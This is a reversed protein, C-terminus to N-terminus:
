GSIAAANLVGISVSMTAVLIGSAMENNSLRQPLGPVLLRLVVFTVLQAVAAILAWLLYDLASVSVRMASALPLVFGLLTGGFALAAAPVNNRILQWERHPTLWSFTFAFAGLLALSLIFYIAFAPLGSLYDLVSALM